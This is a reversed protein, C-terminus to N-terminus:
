RAQFLLGQYLIEYAGIDVMGYRIRISGALDLANTAWSRNTGANVCASDSALRYDGTPDKFKPDGYINGQDPNLLLRNTGVLCNYFCNTGAATSGTFVDTYRNSFSRNGAIICNYILNTAGSSLVGGCDNASYNNVITCNELSGTLTGSSFNQLYAGAGYGTTSSNTNNNILCNLIVGGNECYVGAGRVSVNNSIACNRVRQLSGGGVSIRIGGGEQSATNGVIDCNDVSLIAVSASAAGGYTANNFSIISNSAIGRFIGGGQTASNNRISSNVVRCVYCGGGYTTDSGSFSNYAVLSNSVLCISGAGSSWIGAGYSIGGVTLVTNSIIISDFVKVGSNYYASIGAGGRTAVNNFFMCNSVVGNSIWLGGGGYGNVSDTNNSCYNYGFWCNRILPNGRAWMGGGNDNTVSSIVHGNSFSLGDIVSTGSVYICRNTYTPWDAAILTNSYGQLGRLTIGNTVVIQTSILYTGNSILVTDGVTAADVASQIQTAADQWTTYPPHNGGELSVYRTDAGATAVLWAFIVACNIWPM